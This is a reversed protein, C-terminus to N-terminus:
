FLAVGLIVSYQILYLKRQAPSEEPHRTTQRTVDMDTARANRIARASRREIAFLVIMGVVSTVLVAGFLGFLWGSDYNSGALQRVTEVLMFLIWPTVGFLWFWLNRNAWMRVEKGVRCWMGGWTGWCSRLSRGRTNQTYSWAPVSWTNSSTSRTM